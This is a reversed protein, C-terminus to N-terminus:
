PSAAAALWLDLDTRIAAWGKGEAVAPLLTLSGAGYGATGWVDLRETLAYRGWPYLGTLTSSVIGNGAPSRYGCDGLSHGVILGVLMRGRRWDAGLPASAVEGDLTLDGDRGDFHTVAGRGWVSLTDGGSVPDEAATLVFASDLLVQRETLTRSHLAGADRETADHLWDALGATTAAQGLGRRGRRAHPFKDAGAGDM